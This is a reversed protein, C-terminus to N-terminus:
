GKLLGELEAVIMALEEPRNFRHDVDKVLTLRIDPGTAHELLRLPVSMAVDRDASGHLLRVPCALELPERLM